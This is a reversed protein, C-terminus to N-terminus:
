SFARRLLTQALAVDAPTTIKLNESAGEVVIVTGGYRAVLAADDTASV